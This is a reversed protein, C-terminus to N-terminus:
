LDPWDDDENVFHVTHLYTQGADIRIFRSVIEDTAGTGPFLAVIRMDYNGPVVGALRFSEGPFLPAGLRNAGWSPSGTPALYIQTVLVGPAANVVQFAGTTVAGPCGLLAWLLVVAAGQKVRMKRIM